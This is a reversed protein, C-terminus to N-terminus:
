NLYFRIIHFIIRLMKVGFFLTSVGSIGVIVFYLSKQKETDKIPNGCKSCIKENEKLENGCEECKTTYKVKKAKKLFVLCVVLCVIALIFYIFARFVILM